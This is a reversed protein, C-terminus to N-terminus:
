RLHTQFFTQGQAFHYGVKTQIQESIRYTAEIHSKATYTNHNVLEKEMYGTRSLYFAPSISGNAMPFGSILTRADYGYGNVPLYGPNGSGPHNFPEQAGVYRGRDSTDHPIWDRASFGQLVLKIGLRNRWTFAYRAQLEYLPKPDTDIYNAGIRATASLGPYEFPTKLTTLMAGNFANPGYLSSAPGAIIEANAVDIDAPGTFLWVPSSLAISLREVGDVRQIFRGNQTFGFGRANIVPYTLSSHVVEVGPFFSLTQASFLAPSSQIALRPLSVIQVPSRIFEEEVRSASIVVEQTLISAENLLIVAPPTGEPGPQLAVVKSQYGMYSVEITIPERLTTPIRFEGNADTNAGLVTGPVRVYAGALPEKSLTDKVVGRIWLTQPSSTEEPPTQMNQIRAARRLLLEQAWLLSCILFASLPFIAM